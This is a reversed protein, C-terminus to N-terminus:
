DAEKKFAVSKLQETEPSSHLTLLRLTENKTNQKNTKTAGGGGLTLYTSCTLVSKSDWCELPPLPLCIEQTQFWGLKCYHAGLCDLSIYLSGMIEGGEGLLFILYYYILPHPVIITNLFYVKHCSM